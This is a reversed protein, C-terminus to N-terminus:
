GRRDFDYEAEADAHTAGEEHTPPLTFTFVSGEGPRSRAEISGGHRDVIKRCIALGMGSGPFEARGYLRQFPRFIRDNYAEDFGV